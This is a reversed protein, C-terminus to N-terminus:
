KSLTNLCTSLKLCTISICSLFTFLSTLFTLNTSSSPIIVPLWSPQTLQCCQLLALVPTNAPFLQFPAHLATGPCQLPFGMHCLILCAPILQCLSIHNRQVSHLEAQEGSSVVQTSAEVATCAPSPTFCLGLPRQFSLTQSFVSVPPLITISPLSHGFAHLTPAPTTWPSQPRM